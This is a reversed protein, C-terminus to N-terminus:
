YNWGVPFVPNLSLIHENELVKGTKGKEKETLFNQLYQNPNVVFLEVVRRYELLFNTTFIM